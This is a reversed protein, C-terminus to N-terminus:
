VWVCVCVCRLLQSRSCCTHTHTHAELLVELQEVLRQVQRHLHGVVVQGLRGDVPLPQLQHAGGGHEDGGLELDPGALWVGWCGPRGSM